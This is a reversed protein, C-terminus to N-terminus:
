NSKGKKILAILMDQTLFIAEYLGSIKASLRTHSYPNETSKLEENYKLIQEELKSILEELNEM